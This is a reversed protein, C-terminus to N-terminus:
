QAFLVFFVDEKFDLFVDVCNNNVILIELQICFQCVIEFFVWLCIKEFGDFLFFIKWLVDDDFGGSEECVAMVGWLKFFDECIGFFLFHEILM